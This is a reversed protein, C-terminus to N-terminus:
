NLIEPLCNIRFNTQIKLLMILNRTFEGFNKRSTSKMFLKKTPMLEVTFNSGKKRTANNSM